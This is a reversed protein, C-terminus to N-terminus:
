VKINQLWTALLRAAEQLLWTALMRVAEQLVLSYSRPQIKSVIFVSWKEFYRCGIPRQSPFPM